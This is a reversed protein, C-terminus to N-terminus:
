GEGVMREVLILFVIMAVPGTRWLVLFFPALAGNKKTGTM